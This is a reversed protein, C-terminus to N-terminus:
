WGRGRHEEWFARLAAIASRNAEPTASWSYGVSAVDIRRYPFLSGLVTTLSYQARERVTSNRDALATLLPNVAAAVRFGGLVRAAEARDTAEGEALIKLVVPLGSRDNLRRLADAGLLRREPDKAELMPRVTEASLGGDLALLAEFAAKAVMDNSHTLLRRLAPVAKRYRSRALLRASNMLVTSSADPDSLLETLVELVPEPLGPTSYLLSYMRSFENSEVKGTSLAKVLHEAADPEGMKFLWAAAMARVGARTDELLKRVVAASDRDSSNSLVSLAAGLPMLRAGPALFRRLAELVKPERIGSVRYIMRIRVTEDVGEQCLTQVMPEVMRREGMRYLATAAGLRLWADNSGLLRSFVPKTDRAPFSDLLLVAYYRGMDGYGPIAKEVLPIVRPDKRNRLTNLASVRLSADSGGLEEVLRPLDDEAVAIAGLLGFLLGAALLTRIM